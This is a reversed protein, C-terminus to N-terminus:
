VVIRSRGTRELCLQPNNEPLRRVVRGDPFVVTFTRYPADFGVVVYGHSALDEALASYKWVELSAGARMIVVPYSRQQPSVDASRLSHGHVKSLDRTLLGFVRSLLSFILPGEAPRAPAQVQAPLYDDMAVSQGAATPYWIWVLLERKTGPVPALTDLTQDDAWDYLARSVAFPGTPTPLTIETRRELWLSGLLGGLGLVGLMALLAFGKFIRRALRRQKMPANM